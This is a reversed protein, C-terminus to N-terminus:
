RSFRYLTEIEHERSVGEKSFNVPLEFFDKFVYKARIGCPNLRITHNRWSFCEFDLLTSDASCDSRLQSKWRSSVFLSIIKNFNMWFM